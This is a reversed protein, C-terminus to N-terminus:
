APAVESPPKSSCLSMLPPTESPHETPKPLTLLVVGVGLVVLRMVNEIQHISLWYTKQPVVWCLAIAIARPKGYRM